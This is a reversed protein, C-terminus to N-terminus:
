GNFNNLKALRNVLDDVNSDLENLYDKILVAKGGRKHLQMLCHSLWNQLPTEFFSYGEALM